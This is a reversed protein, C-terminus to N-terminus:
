DFENWETDLVRVGRRLLRRKWVQVEGQLGAEQARSSLGKQLKKVDRARLVHLHPLRPFLRELTSWFDLSPRPISLLQLPHTEFSELQPLPKELSLHRLKPCSSLLDTPSPHLRTPWSKPTYLLLSRLNLGHTVIFQSSLSIPFPIDDYPTLTLKTLAPLPSHLLALMLPSHHTSLLTLTRLKPLNLPTFSNTDLTLSHLDDDTLELDTQDMGQGTIDLEEINPCHRLLQVFPDEDPTPSIPSTYQLGELSRLNIAGERQALSLVARRSLTISPNISFRQLFPILPFLHTLISDLQLVQKTRLNSMDIVQVWRGPTSYPIRRISDWNQDSTFLRRYFKDLTEISHFTVRSYLSPQAIDKLSKCIMLYSLPWATAESGSGAAAFFFIDRWIEIPLPKVPARVPLLPLLLLKGPYRAYQRPQLLVTETGNRAM